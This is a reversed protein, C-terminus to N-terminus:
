FPIADEDTLQEYWGRLWSMAEDFKAAPLRKYSNISFRRYLEGYVGGYENRGTTKSFVLGVARVGQSLQAAQSVSVFREKNSLEAEIAEVRAATDAISLEATRMRNDFQQRLVLQERALNVIAMGHRYAIALPDDSELLAEIDVGDPRHTVENRGFADALVKHCDRQYRILAERVEGKVRNASIGFLWGNIYELPLAVMQRNQAKGGSAENQADQVTVQVIMDSLVADRNIRQRQASWSVGLVDCIPRLPVYVTDDDARVATIQDDYFIIQKQEITQLTTDNM